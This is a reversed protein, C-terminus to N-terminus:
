AQSQIGFAAELDEGKRIKRDLVLREFALYVFTDIEYKKYQGNFLKGLRNRAAEGDPHVKTNLPRNFDAALRLKGPKAAPAPKSKTAM